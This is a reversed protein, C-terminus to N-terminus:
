QDMRKFASKVEAPVGALMAAYQSLMAYKLADVTTAALVDPRSTLALLGRRVALVHTVVDDRGEMAAAFGIGSLRSLYGERDTRFNTLVQAMRAALTPTERGDQTIGLREIEAACADETGAEFIAHISTTYGATQALSIVQEGDHVLRWSQAPGVTTQTM